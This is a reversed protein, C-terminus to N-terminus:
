QPKGLGNARRYRVLRKHVEQSGPLFGALARELETEGGWIGLSHTDRGYQRCVDMVPCTSCLEKAAQERIKRAPPRENKELDFFLEVRNKCVAYDTWYYNHMLAM